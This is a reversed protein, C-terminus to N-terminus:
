EIEDESGGTRKLVVLGAISFITIMWMYAPINRDGTKPSDVNKITTTTKATTTTTTAAASVTTTTEPLAPTVEFGDYDLDESKGKYEASLVGSYTGDYDAPIDFSATDSFTDGANISVTKSYTYALESTGDKYVNVTVLVEDANGSGSNTVSFKVDAKSDSPTLDLKGSFSTVDGAVTFEATDSSVEVGDQVVSATVNYEGDTLKGPALADSYDMSGEPNVSGISHEFDAREAGKSDFVKVNLVLDNETMGISNNYVVSALNIPESLSYNKKDSNVVNAISQENSIKFTKEASAITDDDNKWSIVAKFRGVTNQPIEWEASSLFKTDAELVQGPVSVLEKTVNDFEDLIVITMDATRGFPSSFTETNIKVTDGYTYLQQDTDINTIIDTDAFPMIYEESVNGANDVAFIHIYQPQSFDTPEATLEASGNSDAPVIDLVQDRNENYEILSPDEDASASVKVVFGALDSFATHKTVNSLVKEADPTEPDAAIYYEYDTPNDVTKVKVSLKGDKNESSIYEPKDPADIDYFSPDKATTQQSIQYLYFLTNALVKREDDSAQGTSDGTQIMGLNNYTCLYFGDIGGSESDIEKHTNLTIWETANTIFQGSTHTNPVTLDGRITWPYNTLTGIKVVSVSTTRYTGHSTSVHLGTQEDFSNFNVHGLYRNMTDHGFLVGRGSDIFKQIEAAAASSMDYGGNCDSAGFFIVDCKWSGDENYLYTAPASNFTSIHVSEIDFIGKGAPLETNSITNTMWEALYPSAPYVNLVKIHEEENWISRPEWKGGNIRRNLQYSYSEADNSIDNWSIDIMNDQDPDESSNMILDQVPKDVVKLTRKGEKLLAGNNDYLKAFVEYEGVNKVTFTLQPDSKYVPFEAKGDFYTIVGKELEVDFSTEAISDEDSWVYLEVKGNFKDNSYYNIEAGASIETENGAYVYYESLIPGFWTIELKTKENEDQKEDIAPPEIIQLEATNRCVEKDEYLCIVTVDYTGTSSTDPVFKLPTGTLTNKEPVLVADEVSSTIEKGKRSVVTKMKVNREVNTAYLLTYSAAVETDTGKVAAHTDLDVLLDTIETADESTREPVTINIRQSKLLEDGKYLEALVYIGEDSPESLTFDASDVEVSKGSEPCNVKCSNEYVANEGNFVTFKLDLEADYNSTYGISTSATISSSKEASAENSSLETDFSTISIKNELDLNDLLRIVLSTTHVSDAFSGNSKEASDLANVVGIEDFESGAANLALYKYVTKELDADSYSDSINNEIYTLSSELPSLSYNNATLFRGVNYVVMSTLVPDSSNENSYSYGGDENVSSILYSCINTGSIDSGSYGTENLAELVLVSDLVDSSYDPYLGFGGDANQVTEMKSLYSGSGSASAIRATMDTNRFEANDEMWKISNEDPQEGTKRLAILADATENVLKNSGFSNDSNKRSRLYEASKEIIESRVAKSDSPVSGNTKIGIMACTNLTLVSSLFVSMAKKKKRFNRGSFNM